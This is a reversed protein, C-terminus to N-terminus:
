DVIEVMHNVKEIMGRIQPTDKKELIQGPRKFGLAEVVKKQKETKGITSRVLKIKIMAM